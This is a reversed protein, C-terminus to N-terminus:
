HIYRMKELQQKLVYHPLNDEMLKITICTKEDVLFYYISNYILQAYCSYCLVHGFGDFSPSGEDSINTKSLGHLLFLFKGEQPAICQVYIALSHFYKTLHVILVFMGNKGHMKLLSFIVHILGGM